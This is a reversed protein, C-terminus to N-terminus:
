FTLQAPTFNATYRATGQWVALEDIYGAFDNAGTAPLTGASSYYNGVSFNTTVGSLNGSVTTTAGAQVGNVFLRLSTGSRSMALHTWSNLAVTVGTNIPAGSNFPVFYVQFVGNNLWFVLGAHPVGASSQNWQAFIPRNAGNSTPYVWTELTMDGTLINGIEATPIILRDGAGNLFLAGTGYKKQTTSFKIAGQRTMNNDSILNRIDTSNDAAGDGTLFFKLQEPYNVGPDTNRVQFTRPAPTYIVSNAVPTATYDRTRGGGPVNSPTTWTVQGAPIGWRAAIKAEISAHTEGSVVDLRNGMGPRSNALAMRNYNFTGSGKHESGTAANVVVRTNTNDNGAGPTQATISGLQIDSAAFPLYRRQLNMLRVLHQLNTETPIIKM